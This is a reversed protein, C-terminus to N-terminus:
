VWVEVDDIIAGNQIYIEQVESQLMTVEWHEKSRILDDSGQLSESQAM